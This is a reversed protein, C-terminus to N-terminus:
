NSLEKDPTQVTEKVLSFDSNQYDSRVRPTRISISSNGQKSPTTNIGANAIQLVVFDIVLATGQSDRKPSIEFASFSLWLYLKPKCIGGGQCLEPAASWAPPCCTAGCLDTAPAPSRWPSPPAPPGWSYSECRGHVSVTVKSHQCSRKHEASCRKPVQFLHM